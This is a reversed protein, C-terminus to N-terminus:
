VAQRAEQVMIQARDEESSQRETRLWRVGMYVFPTSIASFACRLLWYPMLLGFIFSLNSGFPLNFAYFALALFVASDVFQSIINSLNNRLWLARGHLRQRLKSFVLVDLLESAAFAALSAASMRVSAGFVSDYATEQPAFRASAPLHTALLGFLMLLIVVVLGSMVIGRARKRGYVEVVIDTASFLLPMVFIAVSCNLHLWSAQILPFTKAGMLEAVAVGFIYLAMLLDLRKIM